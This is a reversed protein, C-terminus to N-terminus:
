DDLDCGGEHVIWMQWGDEVPLIDKIHITDVLQVIELFMKYAGAGSEGKITRQTDAATLAKMIDARRIYEYTKKM